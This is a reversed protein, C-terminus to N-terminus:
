LINKSKNTQLFFHVVQGFLSFLVTVALAIHPKSSKTNCYKQYMNKTLIALLRSNIQMFFQLECMAFIVCIVFHVIMSNQANQWCHWGLCLPEVKMAATNWVTRLSNLGIGCALFFYDPKVDTYCMWTMESHILSVTLANPDGGPTM